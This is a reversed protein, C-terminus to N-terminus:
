GGLSQGDACAPLVESLVESLQGPQQRELKQQNGKRQQDALYKQKEPSQATRRRDEPWVGEHPSMPQGWKLTRRFVWWGRIELEM